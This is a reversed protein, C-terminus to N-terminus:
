LMFKGQSYKQSSMRQLFVSYSCNLHSLFSVTDMSECDEPNETSKRQHQSALQLLVYSCFPSDAWDGDGSSFTALCFSTVTKTHQCFHPSFIATNAQDKNLICFHLLCFASPVQQIHNSELLQQM